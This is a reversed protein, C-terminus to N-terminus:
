RRLFQGLFRGRSTCPPIATNDTPLKVPIRRVSKDVALRVTRQTAAPLRMFEAAMFGFCVSRKFGVRRSNASPIAPASASTGIEDATPCAGPAFAVGVGVGLGVGIGVVGGEAKASAIVSTALARNPSYRVGSCSVFSGPTKSADTPV